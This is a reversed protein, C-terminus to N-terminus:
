NGIPWASDQGFHAVATSFFSKALDPLHVVTTVIQANEPKCVGKRDPRAFEGFLFCVM